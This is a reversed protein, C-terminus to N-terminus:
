VKRQKKRQPLSLSLYYPSSYYFAAYSNKDRIASSGNVAKKEKKSTGRSL